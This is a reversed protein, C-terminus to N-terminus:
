SMMRKERSFHPVPTQPRTAPANCAPQGAVNKAVSKAADDRKIALPISRYDLM